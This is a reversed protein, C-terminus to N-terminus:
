LHCTGNRRDSISLHHSLLGEGTKTWQECADIFHRDLSGTMSQLRSPLLKCFLDTCGIMSSLFDPLVIQNATRVGLDGASVPLSAQMWANNALQVSFICELTSRICDDYRAVVSKNFCPSFLLIYQLKPLSFCNRLLFFADHAQLGKLRHSLRQLEILKKELLQDVSQQGGVPAGLLVAANPDVIAIEPAISQFKHIVSQNATFLECKQVNVHLGIKAAENKLCLFALM